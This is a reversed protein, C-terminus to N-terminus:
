EMPSNENAIAIVKPNSIWDVNPMSIALRNWTKHNVAVSIANAVEHMVAIQKAEASIKILRKCWYFRVNVLDGHQLTM